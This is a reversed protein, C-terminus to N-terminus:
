KFVYRITLGFSGATFFVEPSLVLQPQWDLSFNLPIDAITYELGLVGMGALIGTSSPRVRNLYYRTNIFGVHGGGGAYWNLGPEVGLAGHYEYLGTFGFYYTGLHLVGELASKNSIFHKADIGVNWFDYVSGFRLGAATTYRKEYVKQASLSSFSFLIIFLAIISHKM